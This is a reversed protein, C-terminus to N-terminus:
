VQGVASGLFRWSRVLRRSDPLVERDFPDRERSVEALGNPNCLSGATLPVAVNGSHEAFPSVDDPASSEARSRDIRTSADTGASRVGAGWRRQAGVAAAPHNRGMAPLMGILTLM